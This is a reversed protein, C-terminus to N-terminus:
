FECEIKVDLNEKLQELIKKFDAKNSFVGQYIMDETQIEIELSKKNKLTIGRIDKEAVTITQEASETPSLVLKAKRILLAFLKTEFFGTKLRFEFSLQIM